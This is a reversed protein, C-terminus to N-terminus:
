QNLSLGISALYACRAKQDLPVDEMATTNTQFLLRRDRNEVTWAEWTPTGSLRHTNPNYTRIFSTWYAQIIPVVHANVGGAYYSTPAGGNTNNPGWIANLEITHSVGYGVILM